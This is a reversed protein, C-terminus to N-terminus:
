RRTGRVVHGCVWRRAAGGVQVGDQEGDQANDEVDPVSPIPQVGRMLQVYYRSRSCTKAHAKAAARDNSLNYCAVCEGRAPPIGTSPRFRKRSFAGGSIENLAAGPPGRSTTPPPPRSRRSPSQTALGAIIDEIESAGGHEAALAEVTARRLRRKM